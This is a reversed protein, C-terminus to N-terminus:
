TNANTIYYGRNLSDYFHWRVTQEGSNCILVNFLGERM